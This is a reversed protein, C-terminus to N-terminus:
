RNACYVPNCRIAAQKQAESLGEVYGELKDAIVSLRKARSADTPHTDALLNVLRPGGIRAQNAWFEAMDRPPYGALSAYVLGVADAESEDSLAYFAALQGTETLSNTGTNVIDRSQSEGIHGAAIHALEHGIVAALEADSLRTTLGTYFVVSQGGFTYAQFVPKEMLVIEIQWEALHTYRHVANFIRTLRHLELNDTDTIREIGSRRYSALQNALAEKAHTKMQAPPVLNVVPAATIRDYRLRLEEASVLQNPAGLPEVGVGCGALLLCGGLLQVIALQFRMGAM